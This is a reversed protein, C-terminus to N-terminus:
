LNFIGLRYLAVMFRALSINGLKQTLAGLSIFWEEMKSDGVIEEPNSWEIKIGKKKAADAAAAAWVPIKSINLMEDWDSSFVFIYGESFFVKNKLLNDINEKKIKYINPKNTSKSYNDVILNYVGDEVDRVCRVAHGYTTDGFYIGDLIGDIRDSNYSKNGRFGCNVSYGM